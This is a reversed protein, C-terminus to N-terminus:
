APFFRIKKLKRKLVNYELIETPIVKGRKPEVVIVVTRAETECFAAGIIEVCRLLNFEETLAARLNRYTDGDAFGIPMVFVVRGDFKKALALARALFQVEARDTGKKGILNPFATSIWKQGGGRNNLFPPNGVITLSGSLAEPSIKAKLGDRKLVLTRPLSNARDVMEQDIDFGFLKTKSFREGVARLLSGDGSALDIVVDSTSIQTAVFHALEDPTMFQGLLRAM